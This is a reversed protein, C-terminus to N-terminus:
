LHQRLIWGDRHFPHRGAAHLPFPSGRFLHSYAGLRHARHRFGSREPGRDTFQILFAVAFLMATDFSISGGWMTAIWNFIKIGTPVAILVTSLAFVYYVTFNMGTALMHHAWVGFSLFGIAVTAVAM